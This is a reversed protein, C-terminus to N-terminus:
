GAVHEIYVPKRMPIPDKDGTEREILDLVTEVLEDPVSIWTEGEFNQFDGTWEANEILAVEEEETMNDHFDIIERVKHADLGAPYRNLDPKKHTVDLRNTQAATTM